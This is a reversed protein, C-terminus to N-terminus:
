LHNSPFYIELSTLFRSQMTGHEELDRKMIRTWRPVYVRGGAQIPESVDGPVEPIQVRIRLEPGYEGQGPLPEWPTGVFENFKEKNWREEESRKRKVDRM